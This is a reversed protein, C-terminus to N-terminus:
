KNGSNITWIRPYIAHVVDRLVNAFRRFDQRKYVLGSHFAGCFQEM